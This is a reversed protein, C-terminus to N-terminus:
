VFSSRPKIVPKTSYHITHEPESEFWVYSDLVIDTMSRRNDLTSIFIKGKSSEFYDKELKLKEHLKIEGEKVFFLSKDNEFLAIQAISTTSEDIGNLFRNQFKRIRPNKM